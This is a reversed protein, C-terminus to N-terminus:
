EQRVAMSEVGPLRAVLESWEPFAGAEERSPCGGALAVLGSAVDGLTRGTREVAEVLEVFAAEPSCRRLCILVGVANDITRRSLVDVTSVGHRM